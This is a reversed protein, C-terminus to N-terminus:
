SAQHRSPDQCLQQHVQRIQEEFNHEWTSHNAALQKMNAELLASQDQLGRNAKPAPHALLFDVCDKRHRREPEQCLKRHFATADDELQHEWRAHEAANQEAQAHLVANHDQLEQTVNHHPHNEAASMLEKCTPDDRRHPSACMERLAAVAEREFSDLWVKHQKSISEIGDELDHARHEMEAKLQGAHVHEHAGPVVFTEMLKTRSSVERLTAELKQKRAKAALKAQLEVCFSYNKHVAEECMEQQAHEIRDLLPM